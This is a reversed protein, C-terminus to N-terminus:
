WTLKKVGSVFFNFSTSTNREFDLHNTIKESVEIKPLRSRGQYEPIIKLLEKNPYRINDVDRYNKKNIYQDAKFRNYAKEIAQMDGLFWTELEHCLIRVLFPSTCNTKLKDILNQKLVKCDENDQDRTVIIKAGPIKSLTPITKEIAKELDQKGQHSFIRFTYNSPLIKPLLIELVNKMSPEETFVYLTNM